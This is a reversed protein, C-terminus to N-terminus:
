ADAGFQPRLSLDERLCDVRPPHERFVLNFRQLQERQSRLWWSGRLPGSGDARGPSVRGVGRRPSRQFVQIDPAVARPVPSLLLAAMPAKRGRKHSWQQIATLALLAAARPAYRRTLCGSM